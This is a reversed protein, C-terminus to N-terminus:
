TCTCCDDDARQHRGATSPRIVMPTATAPVVVAAAYRVGAGVTPRPSTVTETVRRGLRDADGDGEADDAGTSTGDVVGGPDDAGAPEGEPEAATDDGAIDDGATDEGTADGSSAGVAEGTPEGVPSGEGLSRGGAAASGDPSSSVGPSEFFAGGM